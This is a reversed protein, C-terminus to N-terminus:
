RGELPEDFPEWGASHSPAETQHMTTQSFLMLPSGNKRRGQRQSETNNMSIELQCNGGKPKKEMRLSQCAIQNMDAHFISHTRVKWETLGEEGKERPVREVERRKSARSCVRLDGKENRSSPTQGVTFRGLSSSIMMKVEQICVEGERKKRM